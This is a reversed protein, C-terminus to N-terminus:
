PTDEHQTNAPYPYTVNTSLDTPDPRAHELSIDETRRPPLRWPDKLDVCDFKCYWNGDNPDKRLDTYQRKFHCRPCVALAVNGGGNLPEWLPM